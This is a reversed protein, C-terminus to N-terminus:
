RTTSRGGPVPSTASDSARLQVTVPATSTLVGCRTASASTTRARVINLCVLIATSPNISFM